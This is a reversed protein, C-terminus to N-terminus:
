REREEAEAERAALLARRAGVVSRQPLGEEAVQVHV